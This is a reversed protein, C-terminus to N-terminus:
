IYAKLYLTTGGTKSAQCTYCISASMDMHECICWKYQIGAIYFIILKQKPSKNQKTKQCRSIWYSLLRLISFLWFWALRDQFHFVFCCPSPSHSPLEWGDQTKVSAPKFGYGTSLTDKGTIRFIYCALRRSLM